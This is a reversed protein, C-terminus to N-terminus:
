NIVPLVKYINDSKFNIPNLQNAKYQLDFFSLVNAPHFRGTSVTRNDSRQPLTSCFDFTKFELGADGTDVRRYRVKRFIIAAPILSTAEIPNLHPSKEPHQRMYDIVTPIINKNRVISYLRDTNLINIDLPICFGVQAQASSIYEYGPPLDDRAPIDTSYDDGATSAALEDNAVSPNFLFDNPNSASLTSYWRFPVVKMKNNNEYDSTFMKELSEDNINSYESRTTLFIIDSILFDYHSGLTSSKIVKEEIEKAITPYQTRFDEKITLSGNEFIDDEITHVPTIYQFGEEDGESQPKCNYDLAFYSQRAPGEPERLLKNNKPDDSVAEEDGDRPEGRLEWYNNGVGLPGEWSSADDTITSNYLIDREFVNKIDLYLRNLYFSPVLEPSLEKKNSIYNQRYAPFGRGIFVHHRSWYSAASGDFTGGFANQGDDNWSSGNLYQTRESPDLNLEDFRVVEGLHLYLFDRKTTGADFASTTSGARSYYKSGDPIWYSHTTNSMWSYYYYFNDAAITDACETPYYLQAESNFSEGAKRELGNGSEMGKYNDFSLTITPSPMSLNTEEDYIVYATVYFKSVPYIGGSVNGLIYDCGSTRSSGLTILGTEIDQLATCKILYTGTQTLDQHYIDGSASSIKTSPYNSFVFTTGKGIFLYIGDSAAEDTSGSRCFLAMNANYVGPKFGSNLTGNMLVSRLEEEYYFNTYWKSNTTDFNVSAM